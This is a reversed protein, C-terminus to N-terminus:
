VMQRSVGSVPDIEYRECRAGAKHPAPLCVPAACLFGNEIAQDSGGVSIQDRLRTATRRQLM